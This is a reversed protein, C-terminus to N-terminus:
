RTKELRQSHLEAGNPKQPEGKYSLILYALRPFDGNRQRQVAAKFIKKLFFLIEKTTMRKFIIEKTDCM